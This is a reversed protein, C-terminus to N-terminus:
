IARNVNAGLPIHSQSISPSAFCRNCTEERSVEGVRAPLCVQAPSVAPQGRSATYNISIRRFLAFVSSKPAEAASCVGLLVRPLASCCHRAQLQTGPTAAAQHSVPKPVCSSHQGEGVVEWWRQSPLEALPTGGAAGNPM